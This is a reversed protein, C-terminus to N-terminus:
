ALLKEEWTVVIIVYERLSLMQGEEGFDKESLKETRQSIITCLPNNLITDYEALEDQNDTNFKNTRRVINYM